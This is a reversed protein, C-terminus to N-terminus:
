SLYQVTRTFVLNICPRRSGHVLLTSNVLHCILMLETINLTMFLRQLMALKQRVKQVYRLGFKNEIKIVDPKQLCIIYEILNTFYMTM